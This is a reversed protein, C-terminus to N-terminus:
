LFVWLQLGILVALAAAAPLLRGKLISNDRVGSSGVAATAVILALVVGQVWVVPAPLGVEPRPVLDEMNPALLLSLILGVGISANYSAISRGLFATRKIEEDRLDTLKECLADWHFWQLKAFKFHGFIVFALLAGYLALLVYFVIQLITM